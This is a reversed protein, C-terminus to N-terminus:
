GMIGGAGGWGGGWGSGWGQGGYRTNITRTGFMAGYRQSVFDNAFYIGANFQGTAPLGAAATEQFAFIRVGTSIDNLATMAENYAEKIVEPPEPGPRRTMLAYTAISAVLRKLYKASNGGQTLLNQIDALQYIASRFIAAELMGSAEALLEALVAGQPTTPDILQAACYQPSTRGNNPGPNLGPDLDNDSCQQFISRVDRRLLFEAPTIYSTLSSNPTM